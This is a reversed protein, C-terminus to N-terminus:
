FLNGLTIESGNYVSRPWWFYWIGIFGVNPEMFLLFSHCKLEPALELKFWNNLSQIMDSIQTNHAPTSVITGIQLAVYDACWASQLRFSAVITSPSPYVCIHHISPLFKSSNHIQHCFCWKQCLQLTTISKRVSFKHTVFM